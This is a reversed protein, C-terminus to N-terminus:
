VSNNAVSRISLKLLRWSRMFEMQLRLWASRVNKRKMEINSMTDRHKLLLNQWDEARNKPTYSELVHQRAASGIKARLEPNSVLKELASHWNNEDVVVGNVGDEIVQQYTDTPSAITPVGCAGAEIYKLESKSHCFPDNTDLPVLNIDIEEFISPFESYDILPRQEVQAHLSQLEDSVSVPGVLLLKINKHERLLTILSHQVVNFDRDHSQSGSLYAIVVANSGCDVNGTTKNSYVQDSLRLYDESLANRIVHVNAHFTRAQHALHDTSAVVVDCHSMAHRFMATRQKYLKNSELAKSSESDGFILDDVDYVVLTNNCHAYDIVLKTYHDLAVRHLVLADFGLPINRYIVGISVVWGLLQCYEAQQLCRIQTTGHSKIWHKSFIGIAIKSM